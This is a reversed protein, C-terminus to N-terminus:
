CLTESKEDRVMAKNNAVRAILPPIKDDDLGKQWLSHLHQDVVRDLDDAVKTDLDTHLVLMIVAKKYPAHDGDCYGHFLLMVQPDLAEIHDIVVTHLKLARTDFVHKIENDLQYKVDDVSDARISQVNIYGGKQNGGTHLNSLKTIYNKALCTATRSTTGGKPVVLLIVAPYEPEEEQVVRMVPVKIKKWFENDQATFEKRLEKFKNTFKEKIDIKAHYSDTVNSGQPLSIVVLIFLVILVCSLIGTIMVCWACCSCSSSLDSGSQKNEKVSSERLTKESPSKPSRKKSKLIPSTSSQSTDSQSNDEQSETSSVSLNDPSESDQKNNGKPSNRKKEKSRTTPM